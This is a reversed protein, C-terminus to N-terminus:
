HNVETGLVPTLWHLPMQYNCSSKYGQAGCSGRRSLDAIDDLLANLAQEAAAAYATAKGTEVILDPNGELTSFDRFPLSSAKPAFKMPQSFQLSRVSNIAQCPLLAKIQLLAQFHQLAADFPRPEGSVPAEVVIIAEIIVITEVVVAAEAAIPTRRPQILLVIAAQGWALRLLPITEVALEVIPPRQVAVPEPVAVAENIPLVAVPYELDIAAGSLDRSDNVPPALLKESQRPATM